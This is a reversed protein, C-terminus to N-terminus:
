VIARVSSLWTVTKKRASNAKFLQPATLSEICKLTIRVFFPFLLQIQM